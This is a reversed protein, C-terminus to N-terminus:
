YWSWKSMERDHCRFATAPVFTDKHMQQAITNYLRKLKKWYGTEKTVQWTNAEKHPVHVVWGKPTVVFTIGLNHLHM